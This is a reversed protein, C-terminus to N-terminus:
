GQHGDDFLDRLVPGGAAVYAEIGVFQARPDHAEVHAQTLMRRINSPNRNWGALESWLKEQAAHDDSIALAMLQELEIEEERYAEILKPSVNALKLRQRVIAASCGFRAAQIKFLAKLLQHHEFGSSKHAAVARKLNECVAKATAYSHM